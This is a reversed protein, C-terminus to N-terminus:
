AARRSELWRRLTAHAMILDDEEVIIVHGTPQVHAYRRAARPDGIWEATPVRISLGTIDALKLYGIKKMTTM